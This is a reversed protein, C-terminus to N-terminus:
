INFIDNPSESEKKLHHESKKIGWRIDNKKQYGRMRRRPRIKCWSLTYFFVFHDLVVILLMVLCAM